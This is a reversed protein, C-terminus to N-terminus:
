LPVSVVFRRGAYLGTVQVFLGSVRAAEGGAMESVEIGSLAPAHAELAMRIMEMAEQRAAETLAQRRVYWLGTGAQPDMWWGRREYRDVVRAAPAEQDTFLVAYVLTEVPPAELSADVFSLDFVGNDVQALCLALDPAPVSAAGGGGGGGGGGDGDERMVGAMLTTNSWQPDAETVPPAASPVMFGSAERSARTFRVWALDGVYSNRESLGMWPQSVPCAGIYFDNGGGGELPGSFNLELGAESGNLLMQVQVGDVFLRLKGSLRDFAVAHWAGDGISVAPAIRMLPSMWSFEAGAQIRWQGTGDFFRREDMAFGDNVALATGQADGLERCMYEICFDEGEAVTFYGNLYSTVILYTGSGTSFHAYAGNAPGGGLYLDPAPGHTAPQELGAYNNWIAM